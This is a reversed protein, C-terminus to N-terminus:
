HNCLLMNKSSGPLLSAILNLLLVLPSGLLLTLGLFLAVMASLDLTLYRLVAALSFLILSFVLLLASVLILKRMTTCSLGNM